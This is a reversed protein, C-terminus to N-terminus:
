PTVSITNQPLSPYYSGNDPKNLLEITFYITLKNQELLMKTLNFKFIPKDFFTIGPMDPDYCAQNPNSKSDLILKKTMPIAYPNSFYEGVSGSVISEWGASIVSKIRTLSAAKLCNLSAGGSKTVDFAVFREGSNDYISAVTNFISYLKFSYESHQSKNVTAGTSYDVPVKSFDLTFSQGTLESRQNFPFTAVFYKVGNETVVSVNSSKCYASPETTCVVKPKPADKAGVMIAAKSVDVNESLSAASSDFEKAGASLLYKRGDDFSLGKLTGMNLMDNTRKDIEAYPSAYSPGNNFWKVNDQSSQWVGDSFKYFLLYPLPSTSAVTSVIVFVKQESVPKASTTVKILNANLVRLYHAISDGSGATVPPVVSTDGGSPMPPTINTVAYVVGFLLLVGLFLFFINKVM